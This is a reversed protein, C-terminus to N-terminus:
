FTHFNFPIELIESFEEGTEKMDLDGSKYFWDVNLTYGKKGVEQLKTLLDLFPKYSSSNFYQLKFVVQVNGSAASVYRDTWSLVPGYFEKTDEPYSRGAIELVHQAPDFTIAPTEHTGEIKLAEM